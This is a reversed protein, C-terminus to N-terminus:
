LKTKDNSVSANLGIKPVSGVLVYLGNRKVSKVIVVGNNKVDIQDKKTKISYGLHDMMSLSILNRKLDPVNRVQELDRIHDMMCKSVLPELGQLRVLLIIEWCYKGKMLVNLPRLM